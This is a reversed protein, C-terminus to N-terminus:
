RGDAQEAREIKGGVSRVCAKAVALFTKTDVPATM